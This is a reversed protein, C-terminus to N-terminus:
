NGRKAAAMSVNFLHGGSDGSSRSVLHCCFPQVRTIPAGPWCWHVTFLRSLVARILSLSLYADLAVLVMLVNMLATVGTYYLLPESCVCERFQQLSM